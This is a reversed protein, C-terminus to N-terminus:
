AIKSCKGSIISHPTFSNTAKTSFKGLIKISINFATASIRLEINPAILSPKSFIASAPKFRTLPKHCPMLSAAPHSLSLILPQTSSTILAILPKKPIAEGEFNVASSPLYKVIPKPLPMVSLMLYAVSATLSIPVATSAAKLGLRSTGSTSLSIPNLLTLNRAEIVGVNVSAVPNSISLWFLNSVAKLFPLESIIEVSM